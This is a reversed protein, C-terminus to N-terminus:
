RPWGQSATCCSIGQPELAPGNSSVVEVQSESHPSVAGQVWSGHSSASAAQSLEHQRGWSLEWGAALVLQWSTHSFSGGPPQLGANTNSQHIGLLGAGGTGEMGAWTASKHSFYISGPTHIM